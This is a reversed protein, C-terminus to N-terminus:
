MNTATMSTRPLFIFALSALLIGAEATGVNRPTSGVQAIHLTGRSQSITRCDLVETQSHNLHQTPVQYRWVISWLISQVM